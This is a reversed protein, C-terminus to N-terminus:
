VLQKEELYGITDRLIGELSMLEKGGSLEKQRTLDFETVPNPEEYNKPPMTYKDKGRINQVTELIEEWAWSRCVGFYRGSATPNELCAVHLAALDQCYIISMSDNPIQESMATGQVIKALWPLGNGSVDGPQLQPALIWSPNMISLRIKNKVNEHKESDVVEDQANRGVFGFAKLEMNTKAAPSFRKNLIQFEPDSWHTLESKALPLAKAIEPPPNTSGTSSTLIVAIPPEAVFNEREKGVELVAELTAIAMSEMVKITEPEQKEYGACMFVGKIPPTSLGSNTSSDKNASSDDSQQLITKIAAKAAAYSEEDATFNLAHLKIIDDMSAPSGAPTCKQLMEPVWKAAVAPDRCTGHVKYGKEVLAKAVYSGVFGTVGIVLASASPAPTTM